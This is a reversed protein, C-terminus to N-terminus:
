KTGPRAIEASINRFLRDVWRNYNPHIKGGGANMNTSTRYKVAYGNASYPIEVTVTHGRTQLFGIVVDASGEVTMQWGIITGARIIADGVQKASPNGYASLSTMAPEVIDVPRTAATCPASFCFCSALIALVALFRKM